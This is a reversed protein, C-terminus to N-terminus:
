SQQANSGGQKTQPEDASQMNVPRWLDDNNALPALGLWGRCENGTAIGWNRAVSLSDITQKRDLRTRDSTDYDILLDTRDGLLKYNLECLIRSLWPRLVDVLFSLQQGSFVESSTREESGIMWPSLRFLGCIESRILKKTETMEADVSSTGLPTYSLEQDLVSVRHQNGGSQAVEWDQRMKLKDEAKVKAKTSLIGSPTANNRYFRAQYRDMAIASGFLNQVQHVMSIGSVGDLTFDTVIHLMQKPTLIRVTANQTVRYALSGDSQRFPTVCWPELYWLGTVAGSGDVAIEAYGNGHLLVSSVMATWFTQSSSEANPRQNLIRFLPHATAARKKGEADVAQLVLPLSSIANNLLRVCANVTAIATATTPSVVEGSDSQGLTLWSLASPSSLPAGLTTSRREPPSLGLTQIKM